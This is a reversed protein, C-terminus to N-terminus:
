ILIIIDAIVCDFRSCKLKFLVSEFGTLFNDLNNDPLRYIAGITKKGFNPHHLDVFFLEFNINTYIDLDNRVVCNLHDLVFLAIRSGRGTDMKKFNNTAQYKFFVKTKM